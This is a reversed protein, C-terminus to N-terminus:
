SVLIHDTIPIRFGVVSNTTSISETIQTFLTHFLPWTRQLTYSTPRLCHTLITCLSGHLSFLQSYTHTYLNSQKPCTCFRMLFCRRAKCLASPFNGSLLLTFPDLPWRVSGVLFHLSGDFSNQMVANCCIGSLSVLMAWISWLTWDCLLFYLLSVDDVDM